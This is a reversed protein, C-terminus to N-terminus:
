HEKVVLCLRHGACRCRRRHSLCSGLGRRQVQQQRRQRMTWWWCRAVEWRCRRRDGYGRRWCRGGAAGTCPWHSHLVLSSEISLLMYAVAQGFGAVAQHNGSYQLWELSARVRSQGKAYCLRRRGPDLVSMLNELGGGDGDDDAGGGGGADHEAYPKEGAAARASAVSQTNL